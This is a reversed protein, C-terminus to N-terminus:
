KLVLGVARSTLAKRNKLLAYDNTKNIDDKDKLRLTLTM